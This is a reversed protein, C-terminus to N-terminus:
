QRKQRQSMRMSISKEAPQKFLDPHLYYGRDEPTKAEEAVMRHAQAYADHRIGTVQWSVRGGPQGGAIRFRNNAVEAAIYLSPAPGGMATLQYRFDANLAEFWDPLSVWAEGNGDLTAIGNYINMMDPSEVLSHVLYKNEPDLPHDIKFGGASKTLTGVVNVDGRFLGAPSGTAFVGIANSEFVGAASTGQAWVGWCDSIPVTCRAHVVQGLAVGSETLVADGGGAPNGIFSFSSALGLGIPVTAGLTGNIFQNGNFTNDANLRAYRADRVGTDSTTGTDTVPGGSVGLGTDGCTVTSVSLLLMLPACYLLRRGAKPNANM